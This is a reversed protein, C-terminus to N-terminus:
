NIGPELVLANAGVVAKNPQVPIGTIETLLRSAPYLEQIVISSEFPYLEPRTGLTMAIEELAANGAREGSGNVTCEVQRAGSRLASLSNAVALGLDNHCHVSLVANKLGRVHIFLFETLQSFEEPTAFGFTDAVTVTKAGAAIATSFVEALYSWNSRTADEATFGVDEIYQRARRVAQVGKDMAEARGLKLKNDLLIDSTASFVHLRPRDAKDLAEITRIVDEDTTGSLGSVIMGRIERSVAKVARFEEDSAVPYGVEIGDINLKALQRALRLREGATMRFGPSRAADGMTTDFIKIKEMKGGRQNRLFVVFFGVM